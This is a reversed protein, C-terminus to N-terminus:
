DQCADRCPKHGESGKLMESLHLVLRAKYFAVQEVAREHFKVLERPDPSATLELNWYGQPAQSSLQLLEEDVSMEGAPAVPAAATAPPAADAVPSSMPPKAIEPVVAAKAERKVPAPAAAPRKGFTKATM